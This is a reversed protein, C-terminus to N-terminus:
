RGSRRPEVLQHMDGLGPQTGTVWGKVLEATDISEIAAYFQELESKM